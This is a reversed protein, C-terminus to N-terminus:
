GNLHTQGGKVAKEKELIQQYKKDLAYIFQRVCDTKSLYGLKRLAPKSFIREAVDRRIEVTLNYINKGHSLGGRDKRTTVVANSAILNANKTVNQDARHLLDIEHIDYIDLVDCGVYNCITDLVKPTPLCNDNVIKSLLSKDVRNDTRRVSELLDKHMIGKTLMLNKYNSM